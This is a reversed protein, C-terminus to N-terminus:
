KERISLGKSCTFQDPELIFGTSCACTYGNASAPSLLCLQSCRSQQCPNIELRIFISITFTTKNKTREGLPQYIQHSIRIQNVNARSLVREHQQAKFGHQFRNLRRIENSNTDVWYLYQEFLAISGPGHLFHSNGLIKRRNQGSYSIVEIFNLHHDTFYVEERIHDLTLGVPMQIGDHVLVTRQQGDLNSREIRPNSGWDTFFLFRAGARPDVAISWPNTLNEHFLIRRYTGNMNAVEVHELIYDTWYINRSIWDFALGAVYSIGSTILKLLFLFFLNNNNKKQRYKKVKTYNATRAHRSYITNAALDTWFYTDTRNDVDFTTIFRMDPGLYVRGYTGITPSMWDLRGGSAAMLRIGSEDSYVPFFCIIKMALCLVRNSKSIIKCSRSDSQLVFGQDCGCIFSGNTNL